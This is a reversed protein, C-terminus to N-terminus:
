PASTPARRARPPGDAEGPVARLSGDGRFAQSLAPLAAAVVREPALRTMCRHDTPCTRRYCPRCAVDAALARVRELNLNTKALSTPGFLVVAPTGLAVAVHRAGADNCVLVRARRLLAKTAGLDLAGALVAAPARMRAAVRAALGAEDPAGVVVVRAGEAALADGVQAFSAAPWLKSSGYSAGPALAVVVEGDAIGRERLAAGAAEEERPTVFLELHTGRPACGIGALVGLVHRERAILGVPPEVGVDLLWRRVQTRYGVVREVGAARMLLASSFSDPLCVGLDFRLRRLSLGERLLAASGRQWSALPLVRDFWPAGGLLPALASRVHVAIDARPFAARLARFGPTAMVLDGAWNPARLLIHRPTHIASSEQHIAV